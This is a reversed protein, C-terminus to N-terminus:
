VTNIERIFQKSFIQLSWSVCVFLFSKYFLFEVNGGGFGRNNHSNGGSRSSSARNSNFGSNVSGSSQRYDRAGFGGSFRCNYSFVNHIIDLCFTLGHEFKRNWKSFKSGMTSVLRYSYRWFGWCHLNSM